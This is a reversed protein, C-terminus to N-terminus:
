LGLIFTHLEVNYEVCKELYLRLSFIHDLTSRNQRFGCQYNGTVKKAYSVLSNAIFASMVKYVESLLAIGRYSDCDMKSGKKHIPCIVATSWKEPMKEEAWMKHILTSIHNLLEEGGYKIM